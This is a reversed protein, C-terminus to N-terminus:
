TLLDPNGLRFAYYLSIVDSYALHGYSWPGYAAFPHPSSTVSAAPRLHLYAWLFWGTVAAAPMWRAKPLWGFGVSSEGGSEADLAGPALLTM